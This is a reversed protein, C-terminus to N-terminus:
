AAEGEAQERKREGDKEQGVRGGDGREHEPAAFLLQLLGRARTDGLDSSAWEVETVEVRRDPV